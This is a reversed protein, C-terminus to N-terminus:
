PNGKRNIHISIIVNPNNSTHFNNYFVFKSVVGFNCMDRVRNMNSCTTIEWWKNELEDKKQGNASWEHDTKVKEVHRPRNTIIALYQNPSTVSCVPWSFSKEEPTLRAWSSQSILRGHYPSKLSSRVWIDM